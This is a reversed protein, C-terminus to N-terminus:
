HELFARAQEQTEFIHSRADPFTEGLKMRMFASSSYRTVTNYLTDQLSAVMSAWAETVEEDLRFGDYNVTVDVREPLPECVSKVQDYIRDIDFQTRVRMNEFNLFLRGTESDIAVRDPLDLQLLDVHLNMAEERFIRLDMTTIEDILPQTEMLALVDREIDIGPAVEILKLGQHTLEFVCRETVYLVPQRLRAARAGSFSVQEVAKMFKRASGERVINIKGDAIAIDMGQATFTGAFVVSRSNQSINIFGGAGALRSGFRSVNVNGKADAQALGLCAMDLGGGDYFDFQASQPIVADCDVAAGFDLGSAPQGGVVGPEATLTLHELM